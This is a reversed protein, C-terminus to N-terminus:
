GDIVSCSKVLAMSNAFCYELMLWCSTSITSCARLDSSNSPCFVHTFLLLPPAKSTVIPDKSPASTQWSTPAKRRVFSAAKTSGADIPRYRSSPRAVSFPADPLTASRVLFFMTLRNLDKPRLIVISVLM